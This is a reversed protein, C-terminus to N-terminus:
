FPIDDEQTKPEFDGGNPQVGGGTKVYTGEGSGQPPGEGGSDGRSDLFQVQFAVVEVKSRKSGDQAEWSSWDLRGDVGIRRGKALHQALTEAQNGFVKVDFFNPKDIWNGMEDKQRGNVAVGLQLVPQGSPLHRLEPERTLRGVLTVHNIDGAM